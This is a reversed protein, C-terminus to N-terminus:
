AKDEPITIKEPFHQAKEFHENLAVIDTIGLTDKSSLLIFAQKITQFARERGAPTDAFGLKQLDGSAIFVDEPLLTYGHEPHSMAKNVLVEFVSSEEQPKHKTLYEALSPHEGFIRALKTNIRRELERKEEAESRRYLLRETPFKGATLFHLGIGSAALGGLVYPDKASAFTATVAGKVKGAVGKKGSMHTSLNVSTKVLATLGGWATVLMSTLGGYSLFHGAPNGYVRRKLYEMNIQLERTHEEYLREAEQFKQEVSVKLEENKKLTQEFDPDSVMLKAAEGRTLVGAAVLKFLLGTTKDDGLLAQVGLQSVQDRQKQTGEQGAKTFQRFLGSRQEPTMKKIISGWITAEAARRTQSKQKGTRRWEGQPNRELVNGSMFDRLIMLYDKYRHEDPQYPDLMKHFDPYFDEEPLFGVGVPINELEALMKIFVADETVIAMFEEPNEINGLEMIFNRMLLIEREEAVQPTGELARFHAGVTGFFRKSEKQFLALKERADKRIREEGELHRAFAGFIKDALNRLMTRMILKQKETGKYATLRLRDFVRQDEGSELPRKGFLKEEIERIWLERETALDTPPGERRSPELEPSPAQTQLVM